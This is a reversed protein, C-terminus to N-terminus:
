LRRGLNEVRTDLEALKEKVEALMIDESRV